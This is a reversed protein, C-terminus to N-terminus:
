LPYDVPMSYGEERLLRIYAKFVETGPLGKQDLRRAEQAPASKLALAWDKQDQTSLTTIKVGLSGAQSEAMKERRQAEESTKIAAEEAVEDIIKIIDEPLRKRVDLNMYTATGVISGRGTKLFYKAVESLKFSDLGSAFFVGGDVLGNQISTYFEGIPITVPTAGAAVAWPANSTSVGLKKSKLDSLTKVEAKTMIGYDEYASLNLPYINYKAVSERLAPVEKLMRTAVRQQLMQDPSTFPVNYSFNFLAARETDFSVAALGIDLTGKQVAEVIGDLKAVTGSYAKVFKVNHGAERARKIVEPVFYDDAVGVYTLSRPHGAGIRFTFDGATAPATGAVLAALLTARMSKRM